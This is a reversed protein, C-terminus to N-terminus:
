KNESPEVRVDPIWNLWSPFYWNWKDALAMSAPVFIMRIITADILVAIGTGFGMQQFASLDGMAFGSFVVIMIAAAGTILKGTRKIGHAVADQNDGTADFRERIRSLLFVEYDM